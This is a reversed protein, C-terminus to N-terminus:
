CICRNVTATPMIPTPMAIAIELKLMTRASRAPGSLFLVKLQLLPVAHTSPLEVPLLV